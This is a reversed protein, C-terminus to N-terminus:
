KWGHDNDTCYPGTIKVYEGINPLYVHNVVGACPAVADSQTITAVCIPECVLDSYEDSINLSNLMYRYQTDLNLRIHYDGDAESYSDDIHGTVSMCTDHIILRYNHYVHPWLSTDCYVTSDSPLPAAFAVKGSFFVASFTVLIITYKKLTM